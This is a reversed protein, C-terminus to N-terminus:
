FYGIAKEGRLRSDASPKKLVNEATVSHTQRELAEGANQLLRPSQTTVQRSGRKTRDTM